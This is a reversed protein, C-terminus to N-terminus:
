FTVEDRRDPDMVCYATGLVGYKISRLLAVVYQIKSFVIFLLIMFSFGDWVPKFFFFDKELVLRARHAKRSFVRPDRRVVTWPSSTPMMVPLPFFFFSFFFLFIHPFLEGMHEWNSLNDTDVTLAFLLSRGNFIRGGTPPPWDARGSGATDEICEVPAAATQSSPM